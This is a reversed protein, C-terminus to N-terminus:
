GHADLSRNAPHKHRVLIDHLVTLGTAPVLHRIAWDPAHGTNGSPEGFRGSLTTDPVDGPRRMRASYLDTKVGAKRLAKTMDTAQTYPVLGDDIGHVFVAGRLGSAKIEAVHEIPNVAHYAAPKEDVTGGLEDAGDQIAGQVFADNPIAKALQFEGFVDNLSEMGVYYDFLPHGGARKPRRMLANGSFAGGLSYGVLVVTKISKCSRLYHKGYGILDAVGNHLPIGRSKPFGYQSPLIRLGRFEPAVAVARDSAAIRRLKTAWAAATWSYGHAVVVLSRPKRKPLSAFGDSREGAVTVHVGRAQQSKSTCAAQAPAAVCLAAVLILLIRRM